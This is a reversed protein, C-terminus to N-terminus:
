RVKLLDDDSSDPFKEHLTDKLVKAMYRMGYSCSFLLPYFVFGSFYNGAIWQLILMVVHMIVCALYSWFYLRILLM